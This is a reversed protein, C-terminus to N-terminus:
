AVYRCINDVTAIVSIHKLSSHFYQVPVGNRNDNMQDYTQRALTNFFYLFRNFVDIAKLKETYFYVRDVNHLVCLKGLHIIVAFIGWGRHIFVDLRGDVDQSM